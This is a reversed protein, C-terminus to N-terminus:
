EIKKLNRYYHHVIYDTHTLVKCKALVRSDMTSGSKGRVIGLPPSYYGTDPCKEIASPLCLTGSNQNSFREGKREKCSGKTNLLLTNSRPLERTTRHAPSKQRPISEISLPSRPNGFGLWFFFFACGFFFHQLTKNTM